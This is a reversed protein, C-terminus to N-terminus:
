DSPIPIVVPNNQNLPIPKNKHLVGSIINELEYLQEIIAKNATYATDKQTSTSKESTEKDDTPSFNALLYKEYFRMIYINYFVYFHHFNYNYNMGLTDLKTPYTSFDYNEYFNILQELESRSKEINPINATKYKPSNIGAILSLFDILMAKQLDTMRFLQRNKKHLSDSVSKLTRELDNRLSEASFYIQPSWSDSYTTNNFNGKKTLIGKLEDKMNFMCSVIGWIVGYKTGPYSEWSLLQDENLTDQVPVNYILFDSWRNNIILWYLFISNYDLEKNRYFKVLREMDTRSKDHFIYGIHYDEKLKLGALKMLFNVLHVKNESIISLENLTSDNMANSIMNLTFEIDHKLSDTNEYVPTALRVTDKEDIPFIKIKHSSAIDRASVSVPYILIFIYLFFRM